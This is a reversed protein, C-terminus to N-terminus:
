LSVRKGMRGLCADVVGRAVNVLKELRDSEVLLIIIPDILLLYKLTVRSWAPRQRRYRLAMILGNRTIYYRRGASHHGSIIWKFGLIKHAQPAGPTHLLVANECVEINYGREHIRFCYENDVQDIFLEEEFWGCSEFIWAPMLSGSTMAMWITGDEGVSSKRLVGTSPDRYRPAVIGIKEPATSSAIARFMADFYCESVSSDQDFLAVWEYRNEIAWRIGTNLASAVGRNEGNEILHFGIAESESRM